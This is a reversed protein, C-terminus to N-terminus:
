GKKESRAPVNQGLSGPFFALGENSRQGIVMLGQSALGLGQLKPGRSRGGFEAATSRAWRHDHLNPARHAEKSRVPFTLESTENLHRGFISMFGWCSTWQTGLPISGM